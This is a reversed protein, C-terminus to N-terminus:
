PWSGSFVQHSTLHTTKPLSITYNIQEDDKTIALVGGMNKLLRYSISLGINGGGEEFPLFLAEPDSIKVGKAENMFEVHLNQESEFTRVNLVSGKQLTTEASRIVNIFVEGLVDPDVYADPLEPDMDLTQRFRHSEMEPALLDLCEQLVQNVSCERPHIEVPKLYNKIRDLIKELRLCEDLIIKIEPLEPHRTQLRRAFGGLSVLPNRIEHAVEASVAGLTRLKARQVLAKELFVRDTIDVVIGELHDVPRRAGSDMWPIFKMIVHILHGNKHEFRCEMSIPARKFSFASVLLARVHERDEAYIRSMLWDTQKLAEEPEYGLMPLSAENIFELQFDKRLLLILLPITQILHFYRREAQEIREKLAEREGFRRLCLRLETVSFPKRLFDYAGLKIARVASDLTGYGTMFIIPLQPIRERLKAALDLGDMEPLRIDVLALSFVNKEVAAIAEAPHNCSVPDYGESILVHAVLDCIATEDDVVLVKSAVPQDPGNM